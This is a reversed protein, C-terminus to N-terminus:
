ECIWRDEYRWYSTAGDPLPMVGDIAADCSVVPMEYRDGKGPHIIADDRIDTIKTWM